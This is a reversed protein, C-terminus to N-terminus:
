VKFVLNLVLYELKVKIFRNEQCLLLPPELEQHVKRYSSMEVSRSSGPVSPINLYQHLNSPLNNGYHDNEYTSQTSSNSFM